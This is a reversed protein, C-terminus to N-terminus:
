LKRYQSLFREQDTENLNFCYKMAPIGLSMITDSTETIPLIEGDQAIKFGLCHNYDLVSGDWNLNVPGDTFYIAEYPKYQKAQEVFENLERFTSDKTHPEFRAVFSDSLMQFYKNDSDNARINEMGLSRCFHVAQRVADDWSKLRTKPPHNPSPFFPVNLAMAKKSREESDLRQTRAYQWMSM